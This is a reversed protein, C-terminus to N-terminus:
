EHDDLGRDHDVINTSTQKVITKGYENQKQLSWKDTMTTELWVGASNRSVQAVLGFRENFMKELEGVTMDNSIDIYGSSKLGAFKLSLSHALRERVSSRQPVVKYFELKLFTYQSNFDHQLEHITRANSIELRM